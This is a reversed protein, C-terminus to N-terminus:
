EKEPRGDEFVIGHEPDALLLKEKKLSDLFSLVKPGVEEVPSNDYHEMCVKILEPLCIGQQLKEFMFRAPENQLKIVGHYRGPDDGISVAMAEDGVTVVEFDGNLHLKPYLTKM